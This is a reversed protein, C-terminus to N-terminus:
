WQVMVQVVDQYVGASPTAQASILGYLPISQVGGDAIASYVRTEDWVTSFAADRHLGYSVLDGAESRLRRQGDLSNQGAGLAVNYTVGPACRLRVAIGAFSINNALGAHSGFSLGQAAGEALACASVVRARVELAVRKESEGSAAIPALLSLVLACSAVREKLRFSCARADTLM